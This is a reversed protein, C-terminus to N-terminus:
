MIIHVLSMIYCAPTELFCWGSGFHAMWEWLAGTVRSAGAVEWPAGAVGLAHEREIM